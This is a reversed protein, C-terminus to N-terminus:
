KWGIALLIGTLILSPVVVWIIRKMLKNMDIKGNEELKGVRDKVDVFDKHLQKQSTNISTL